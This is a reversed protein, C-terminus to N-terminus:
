EGPCRLVDVGGPAGGFYKRQFWFAVNV